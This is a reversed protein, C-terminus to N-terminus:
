KGVGEGIMFLITVVSIAILQNRVVNNPEHQHPVHCHSDPIPLPQSRVAEVSSHSRNSAQLDSQTQPNNINSNTFNRTRVERTSFPNSRVNRQAAQSGDIDLVLRGQITTVPHRTHPDDSGIDSFFDDGDDLPIPHVDDGM